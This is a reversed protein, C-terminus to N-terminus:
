VSLPFFDGHQTPPFVAAMKLLVTPPTELLPPDVPLRNLIVGVAGRDDSERALTSIVRDESLTKIGREGWNRVAMNSVGSRRGEDM